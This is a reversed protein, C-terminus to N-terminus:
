RYTSWKRFLKMTLLQNSDWPTGASTVGSSHTCRFNSWVRARLHDNAKCWRLMHWCFPAQKFTKDNYKLAANFVADVIDM